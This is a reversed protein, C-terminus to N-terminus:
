ARSRSRTRRVVAIAGLVLLGSSSPEPVGLPVLHADSSTATSGLNMTAGFHARWLDYQVQRIIGGIGNDNPLSNTTGANERWVVYDAADVTGNNNFDGAVTPQNVASITLSTLSSGTVVGTPPLLTVASQDFSAVSLATNTPLGDSTFIPATSFANFDAHFSVPGGSLHPFLTPASINLDIANVSTFTILADSFTGFDAPDDLTVEYSGAKYHFFVLAPPTATNKFRGFTPSTEGLFEFDLDPAATDYTLEFQFPANVPISAQNSTSITGSTRLSFLSARAPVCALLLLLFVVFATNRSRVIMAM